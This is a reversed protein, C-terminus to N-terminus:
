ETKDKANHRAIAVHAPPAVFFCRGAKFILSGDSIDRDTDNPLCISEDLKWKKDRFKIEITVIKLFQKEIWPLDYVTEIEANFAYSTYLEGSCKNYKNDATMYVIYDGGIFGEEKLRKEFQPSLQLKFQKLFSRHLKGGNKWKFEFNLAGM